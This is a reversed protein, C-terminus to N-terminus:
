GLVQIRIRFLKKKKFRLRVQIFKKMVIKYMERARPDQKVGVDHDECEIVLYWYFYNALTTNECARHILFKALDLSGDVVMAVGSSNNNNEFSPVGTMGSNQNLQHSDTGDLMGPSSTANVM